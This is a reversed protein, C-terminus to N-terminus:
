QAQVYKFINDHLAPYCHSLFFAVKFVYGNIFGIYKLGSYQPGNWVDQFYLNTM